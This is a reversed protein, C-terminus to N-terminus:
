GVEEEKPKLKKWFEELDLLTLRSKETQYSEKGIEESIKHVLYKRWNEDRVEKLLETDAKEISPCFWSDGGTKRGNKVSYKETRLVDNSGPSKVVIHSKTVSVVRMVKRLPSRGASPYVAVVLDDVKVKQLWESM